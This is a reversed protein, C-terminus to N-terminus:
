FKPTEFGDRWTPLKLAKGDCTRRAARAPWASHCAWRQTLPLKFSQLKSALFLFQVLFTPLKRLDSGKAGVLIQLHNSMTLLRGGYGASSTPDLRLPDLQTAHLEHFWLHHWVRAMTLHQVGLNILRKKSLNRERMNGFLQIRWDRSESFESGRSEAPALPQPYPHAPRIWQGFSDRRPWTTDQLKRVCCGVANPLGSAKLPLVQQDLLLFSFRKFPRKTGFTGLPSSSQPVGM